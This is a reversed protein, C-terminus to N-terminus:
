VCCWNVGERKGKRLLWGRGLGEGRVCVFVGLSWRDSESWRLMRCGVWWGDMEGYIGILFGDTEGFKLNLCLWLCASCRHSVFNWIQKDILYKTTQFRYDITFNDFWNKNQTKIQIWLKYLRATVNISSFNREEYIKHNRQNLKFRCWCTVEPLQWLLAM